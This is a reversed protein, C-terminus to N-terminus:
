FNECVSSCTKLKQRPFAGGMGERIPFGARGDSSVNVHYIETVFRISPPQRPYQPGFHAYLMWRGGEYPTRSPGSLIIKWFFIDTRCVFVNINDMQAKIANNAERLVRTYNSAGQINQTFQTPVKYTAKQHLQTPMRRVPKNVPGFYKSERECIWVAAEQEFTAGLEINTLPLNQYVYGHTKKCLLRFSDVKNKETDKLLDDRLFSVFDVVINYKKLREGLQDITTSSHNDIGDSICIILKKCDKAISITSNQEHIHILTTARNLADYMSTWEQQEPQISLAKEFDDRNDTIPCIVEVSTGFHILGVDHGCRGFVINDCMTGLMIISMDFVTKDDNPDPSALKEFM